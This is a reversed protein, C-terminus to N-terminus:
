REFKTKSKLHLLLNCCYTIDFKRFYKKHIKFIDQHILNVKKNKKFHKKWIKHLMLQTWEPIHFIRDIKKLSNYYHGSACGVDVSWKKYIKSFKKITECEM